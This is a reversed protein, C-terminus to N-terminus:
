AMPHHVRQCLSGVNASAIGLSCCPNAWQRRPEWRTWQRAGAAPSSWSNRARRQPTQSQTHPYERFAGTQEALGQPKRSANRSRQRVRGCSCKKMNCGGRSPASDWWFWARVQWWPFFPGTHWWRLFPSPTAWCSPRRHPLRTPVCRKPLPGCWRKTHRCAVCLRPYGLKM